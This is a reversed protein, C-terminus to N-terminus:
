HPQRNLEDLVILVERPLGQVIGKLTETVHDAQVIAARVLQAFTDEDLRERHALVTSLTGKVVSMSGLLGHALVGTLTDDVALDDDDM